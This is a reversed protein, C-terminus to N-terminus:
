EPCSRFTRGATCQWARNHSRSRRLSVAPSHRSRHARRRASTGPSLSIAGAALALKARLLTAVYRVGPLRRLARNSRGSRTSRLPGATEAGERSTVRPGWFCAGARKGCGGAAVASDFVQNSLTYNKRPAAKRFAPNSNAGPLKLDCQAPDKCGHFFWQSHHFEAARGYTVGRADCSHGPNGGISQTFARNDHHDRRHAAHRVSQDLSCRAGFGAISLSDGGEELSQALLMFDREALQNM